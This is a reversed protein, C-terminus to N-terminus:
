GRFSSVLKYGDLAYCPVAIGKPATKKLVKTVKNKGDTLSAGSVYYCYVSIVDEGADRVRDEAEEIAAGGCPTNLLCTGSPDSQNVPDAGGYLYANAQRLDAAQNIPDQQTWRGTAPEYYRAGFHTLGGPSRVGGAYGLTDHPTGISRGYPDYKYADTKTGATDTMGVISGREDHLFYRRTSGNRQSIPTGGPTRAYYTTSTGSTRSALGLADNQLTVGAQSVLDDQGPGAHTLSSLTTSGAPTIGTIQDRANYAVTGFSPSKTQNGNADYTLNASSGNVSTLQSGPNYGYTTTTTSAAGPDKFQVQTRNGSDTLDYNYSAPNLGTTVATDLRDLGDYGYVTENPAGAHTADTLKQLLTTEAGSKTYSYTLDQLKTTGKNAKISQLRGAVDYPSDIVVGNPLTTKTRNQDGNYEFTAPTAVGPETMSALLNTPGYNYTTTGGADIISKLNDAGDYTYETTKGNPHTEKTTRGKRDVLLTTM